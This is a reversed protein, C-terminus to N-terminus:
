ILSTDSGDDATKINGDRKDYYTGDWAQDHYYIYQQSHANTYTKKRNTSSSLTTVKNGQGDLIDVQVNSINRLLYYKMSIDNYLANKDSSFAIAQDDVTQNGDADTVMGGYYQTGTNK